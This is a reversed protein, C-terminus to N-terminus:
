RARPRTNASKSRLYRVEKSLRAAPLMDLAARIAPTSLVVNYRKICFCPMCRSVIMTPDSTQHRPEGGSSGRATWARSVLGPVTTTSPGREPSRGSSGIGWPVLVATIENTFLLSGSDCVGEHGGECAVALVM